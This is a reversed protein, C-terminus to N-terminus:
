VELRRLITYLATDIYDVKHWLAILQEVYQSTGTYPGPPNPPKCEESKGLCCDLRNTLIDVASTASAIVEELRNTAQEIPTGVVTPLTNRDAAIHYKAEYGM